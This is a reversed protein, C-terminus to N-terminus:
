ITGAAFSSCPSTSRDAVTVLTEGHEVRYLTLRSRSSPAPPVPIILSDTSSLDDSAELQNVLCDGGPDRSLRSRHDCRKGPVVEPVAM